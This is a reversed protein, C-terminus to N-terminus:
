SGTITQKPSFKYSGTFNVADSNATVPCTDNYLHLNSGTTLVKLTNTKNSFTAKVTGNNATASTGNIVASCTVPSTISLKGHIGQHDHEGNQPRTTRFGM